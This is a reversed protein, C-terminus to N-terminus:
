YGTGYRMNNGLKAEYEDNVFGRRQMEAQHRRNRENDAWAQAQSNAQMNADMQMKYIALLDGMGGGAGSGSGGGAGGGAGSYTSPARYGRAMDAAAVTQQIHLPTGFKLPAGYSIGSIQTPTFPSGYNVMNFKSQAEQNLQQDRDHQLRGMIMSELKGMNPMAPAQQNMSSSYNMGYDYNPPPQMPGPNSGYPPYM